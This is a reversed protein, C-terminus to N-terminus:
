LNTNCFQVENEEGKNKIIVNNAYLNDGATFDILGIIRYGMFTCFCVSQVFRCSGM